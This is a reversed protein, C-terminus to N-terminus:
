WYYDPIQDSIRHFTQRGKHTEAGMNNQCMFSDGKVVGELRGNDLSLINGNIGGRVIIVNYGEWKYIGWVNTGDQELYLNAWHWSWGRPTTGEKDKHWHGFVPIVGAPANHQYQKDLAPDKEPEECGLFTLASCLALFASLKKRM